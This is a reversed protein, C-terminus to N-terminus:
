ERALPRSSSTPPIPFSSVRQSRGASASNVPMESPLAARVASALELEDELSMWHTSWGKVTDCSLGDLVLGLQPFEARLKRFLSPLGDRQEIWARNDLRITTVILPNSAARLRDVTELFQPSCAARARDLARRALDPTVLEDKVTFLLLNRNLMEKFIDDDNKVWSIRDAAISESFLEQLSGFINQNEHLVFRDIGAVSTSAFVNAWGTQVNWFNHGLHPCSFDTLALSRGRAARDSKCPLYSILDAARNICRAYQSAVNRRMDAESLFNAVYLILFQQPFVWLTEVDVATMTDGMQSALCYRDGDAHFYWERGLSTYVREPRGTFPSLIKGSGVAIAAILARSRCSIGSKVEGPTGLTAEGIAGSGRRATALFDPSLFSGDFDGPADEDLRIMRYRSEILKACREEDSNGLNTTRREGFLALIAAHIADPDNM